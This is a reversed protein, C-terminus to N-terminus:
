YSWSWAPDQRMIDTKQKLELKKEYLFLFETCLEGILWPDQDIIIITMGFNRNLELLWDRLAHKSTHDLHASPEDLILVQPQMSIVSAIIVRQKQGASLNMPLNKALPTIGLRKMANLALKVDMKLNKIGFEIEEQVTASFLQANLDQFVMGVVRSLASISTKRVDLGNIIIEGLLEGNISHPILGKLIYGLTTKGSGSLGALAIIEGKQMSFSTEQLIWNPKQYAFSLNSVEIIPPM